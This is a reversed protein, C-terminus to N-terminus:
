GRIRTRLEGLAPHTRYAEAKWAGAFSALGAAIVDGWFLPSAALAPGARALLLANNLLLFVLWVRLGARKWDEDMLWGYNFGAFAYFAIIAGYNVALELPLRMSLQPALDILVSILWALVAVAARELLFSPLALLLFLLAWHFLEKARENM